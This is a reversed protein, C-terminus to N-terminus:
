KATKFTCKHARCVSHVPPPVCRYACACTPDLRQKIDNAVARVEDLHEKAVAAYCGMPCRYVPIVDCDSSTRCSSNAAVAARFEDGLKGNRTRCDAASDDQARAGRVSAGAMVALVGAVMVPLTVKLRM